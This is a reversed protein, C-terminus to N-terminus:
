RGMLVCLLPPQCHRTSLLLYCRVCARAMTFNDTEIGFSSSNQIPLDISCWEYGVIFSLVQYGLTTHQTTHTRARVATHQLWCVCLLMMLDNMNLIGSNAAAKGIAYPTAYFTHTHMAFMCVSKTCGSGHYIYNIYM